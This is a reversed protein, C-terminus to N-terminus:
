KFIKSLHNIPVQSIFYPITPRLSSSVRGTLAAFYYAAPYFLLYNGIGREGGSIILFKRDAQQDYGNGFAPDRCQLHPYLSKATTRVTSCYLLLSLQIALWWVKEIGTVM